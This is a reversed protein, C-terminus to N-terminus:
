WCGRYYGGGYYPVGYGGGYGYYGGYPQYYIPTGISFGIYPRYYGGSYYPRGWGSYGYGGYGYGGYGWGGRYHRVLEVSAGSNSTAIAPAIQVRADDAAARNPMLAAGWALVFGLAIVVLGRRGMIRSM